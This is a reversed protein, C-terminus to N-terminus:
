RICVRFILQRTKQSCATVPRRSLRGATKRERASAFVGDGTHFEDILAVRYRADQPQLSGFTCSAGLAAATLWAGLEM